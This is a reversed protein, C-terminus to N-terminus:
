NKTGKTDSSVDKACKKIKCTGSIAFGNNISKGTQPFIVMTGRGWM